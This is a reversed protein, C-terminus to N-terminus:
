RAGATTSGPTGRPPPGVAAVLRELEVELLRELQQRLSLGAKNKDDRPLTGPAHEGTNLEDTVAMRLEGFPETNFVVTIDHSGPPLPEIDMFFCLLTGLPFDIM